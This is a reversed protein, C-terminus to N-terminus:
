LPAKKKHLVESIHRNINRLLQFMHIMGDVHIPFYPVINTVESRYAATFTVCLNRADALDGM